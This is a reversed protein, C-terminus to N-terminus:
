TSNAAASTRHRQLERLDAVDVGTDRILGYWLLVDTTMFAM